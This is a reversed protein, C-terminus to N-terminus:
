RSYEYSAEAGKRVGVAAEFSNFWGLHRRRKDVSIVAQWQKQRNNWIVGTVGSTNTKRIRRNFAQQSSTAWRCNEPTYDGDNDRRDLTTGEPREGMDALFNAFGTVRGLWRDCVKIGRKGYNDYSPHNRNYCRNKMGSYTWYLPGYDYQM